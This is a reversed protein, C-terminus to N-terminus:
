CIYTPSLRDETHILQEKMYKLTNIERQQMKPFNRLAVKVNIRKEITAVKSKGWATM